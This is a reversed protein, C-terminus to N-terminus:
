FQFYIFPQVESSAVQYTLIIIVAVMAVKLVLPLASFRDELGLKYKKPIFHLTYGILIMTFVKWYSKMKLWVDPLTFHNVMRDLMSKVTPVDDARFYIWCFCVFHFTVLGAIFNYLKSNQKGAWPVYELWAKHIALAAGHLAGWIIFKNAAGHWLGGLLMTILLNVYTRVKGKRNGGLSIYLFDRLWTSLSIHWRRWFETISLSVYPSNFNLPLRFGLLLSIGIAMDSYGSFDCYIQIAYGYVAMLNDFGSYLQPDDFVRDVFNVSIYDSIVVKKIFGGVILFIAHGFERETLSFKKAIQPIFDVARVIPGAILQPFYTVFFGFDLINKAPEIHRRYVEITYSLAQFTFFSIGVPLVIKSIDFGTGFMNNSAIYFINQPKFSTGMLDNIIDAFYFAYKFFALLGLNISLSIILFMKRKFESKSHHIANALYFDYITSLILLSFFWGGTRYYFFVGFVILYASRLNLRNHIVTYIGYMVTFIFIFLYQSFLLPSTESFVFIERLTIM